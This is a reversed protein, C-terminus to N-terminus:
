EKVYKLGCETMGSPQSRCWTIRAAVFINAAGPNYPVAARVLLGQAFDRRSRFRVGGKSMDAIEITTEQGGFLICGKLEVKLRTHKRRNM